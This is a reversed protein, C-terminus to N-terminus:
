RLPSRIGHGSGAPSCRPWGNGGEFWARPDLAAVDPVHWEVDQDLVALAEEYDGRNFADVGKRVIEVNEESM